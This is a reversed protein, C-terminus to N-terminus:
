KPELLGYLTSKRKKCIISRFRLQIVAPTKLGHIAGYFKTDESVCFLRGNEFPDSNSYNADMEMELVTKQTEKTDSTNSQNANAKQCAILSVASIIGVLFISFQKTSPM